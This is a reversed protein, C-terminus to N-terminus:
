AVAVTNSMYDIYPTYNYSYKLLCGDPDQCEVIENDWTLLAIQYVFTNVRRSHFHSGTIESLDPVVIQLKRKHSGTYYLDYLSLEHAHVYEGSAPDKFLVAQIENVLSQRFGRIKLLLVM